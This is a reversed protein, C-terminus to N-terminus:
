QKQRLLFMPSALLMIVSVISIGIGIGWLDAFLGITPAIIATILSKAQSQISLVTALINDDCYDSIYAMGAPKRINEIIFIFIM